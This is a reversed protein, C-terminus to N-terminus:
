AKRISGSPHRLAKGLRRRLGIAVVKPLRRFVAGGLWVRPGAALLLEGQWESHQRRLTVAQVSDLPVRRLTGLSLREALQSLFCCPPCRANYFLLPRDDAPAFGAQAVGAQQRGATM